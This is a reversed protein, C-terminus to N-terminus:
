GRITFRTDVKIEKKIERGYSLIQSFFYQIYKMNQKLQILSIISICIFTKFFYTYFYLGSIYHSTEQIVSGRVANRITPRKEFYNTASLIFYPSLIRCRRRIAKVIKAM